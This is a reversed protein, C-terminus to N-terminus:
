FPIEEDEYAFANGMEKAPEQGKFGYIIQMATGIIETNYKTEGTIKDQYKSTRLYGEVYIKFGKLVLDNVIAALKGFFVVRHWEAIEKKEGTHKDKFTESTVIILKTIPFDQKIEYKPECGVVGMILVKNIGKQM